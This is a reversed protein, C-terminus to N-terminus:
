AAVKGPYDKGYLGRHATSAKFQETIGLVTEAAGLFLAGDNALLDAVGSLVRAKTPRDFYILVNRMFVVDFRGLTRLNDLLNLKRWNVAQRLHPKVQFGSDVKDFYKVLMQIPLGRQVEFQSYLGVRAKAL